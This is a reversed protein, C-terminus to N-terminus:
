SRSSSVVAILSVAGVYESVRYRCSARGIEGRVARVDGDLPHLALAYDFMENGRPDDGGLYRSGPVVKFIDKDRQGLFGLLCLPLQSINARMNWISFVLSNLFRSKQASAAMRTPNRTNKKPPINAMLWSMGFSPNSSCI